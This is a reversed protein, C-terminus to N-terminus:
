QPKDKKIRGMYKNIYPKHKDDFKLVGIKTIKNSEVNQIVDANVGAWKGFNSDKIPIPYTNGMKVQRLKKLNYVFKNKHEIEDFKMEELSTIVNVNCTGDKNIDRIYVYHGKSKSNVGPLYKNPCWGVKNKIFDYYKQKKDM